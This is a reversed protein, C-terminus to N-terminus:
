MSIGELRASAVAPGLRPTSVGLLLHWGDCAGAACSQGLLCKTLRLSLRFLRVVCGTGSGPASYAAAQGGVPFKNKRVTVASGACDGAALTQM